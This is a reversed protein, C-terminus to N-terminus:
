DTLQKMDLASLKQYGAKGRVKKIIERRNVGTKKWSVHIWKPAIDGDNVEELLLQDYNGLKVILKAIELNELGLDGGTLGVAQIDAAEGKVHQSNKAGKVYSNHIPCRFGSTVKILKGYARRVPDLVNNVLAEINDEIGYPLQKAAQTLRCEACRDCKNERYCRIMETKSFYQM